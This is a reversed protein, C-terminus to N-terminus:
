NPICRLADARRFPEPTLPVYWADYVCLWTTDDNGGKMWTHPARSQRSARRGRSAIRKTAPSRAESTLRRIGRPLARARGRRGGDGRGAGHVADDSSMCRRPLRDPRREVERAAGTRPCSMHPLRSVCRARRACGSSIRRVGEAARRRRGQGVVVGTRAM